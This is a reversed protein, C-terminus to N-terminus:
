ILKTVKIKIKKLYANLFKQIKSCFFGKFTNISIWFVNKWLLKFKKKLNLINYNFDSNLLFM